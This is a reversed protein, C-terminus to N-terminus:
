LYHHAQAIPVIHHPTERRSHDVLTISEAISVFRLDARPIVTKMPLDPTVSM